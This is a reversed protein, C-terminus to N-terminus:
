VDVGLIETFNVPTIIKVEADPYAATFTKPVKKRSSPSWKFEFAFLRGDKEEIYDVEQQATTRWFFRNCYYNHTTIYKYRESVMFNEWLAGADNRLNLPNFANIVANRLGNDYFYIKRSKKLENRLNRSLSSLRFVIFAKELLGIYREVTQNDLGAIQGLEHYSVENGIQFALAQVLKELKEPKLIREWMLIDKYLYSDALQKLIPIENEPNTVVEPYYGYILRHDLLSNETMLSHYLAMEKFSVPLLLYEWSRGTMSETLRNSLEFASSGTAIVKLDPINDVMMKISLGINEIRQAEDIFLYRVGATLRKLSAISANELSARVTFDDGNWYQRPDQLDKMLDNILTTKGSQRPGFIILAKNDALHTLLNNKLLRSIM